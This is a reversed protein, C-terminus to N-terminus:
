KIVPGMFCTCGYLRIAWILAIGELLFPSFEELFFSFFKERLFFLFGIGHDGDGAHGGGTDLGARRRAVVV